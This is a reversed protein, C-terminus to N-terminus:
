LIVNTRVRTVHHISSVMLLKIGGLVLEVTQQIFWLQCSDRHSRGGRERDNERGRERGRREREM